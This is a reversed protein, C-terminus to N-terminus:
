KNESYTTKGTLWNTSVKFNGSIQNKGVELKRYNSNNYRTAEETYNKLAMGMLRLITQIIIVIAVSSIAGGGFASKGISKVAKVNRLVPSYMGNTIKNGFTTTIRQYRNYEVGKEKPAKINTAVGKGGNGNGGKGEVVFRYITAM